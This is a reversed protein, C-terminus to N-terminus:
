LPTVYQIPVYLVVTHFISKFAGLSFIVHSRNFTNNWSICRVRNLLKIPLLLIERDGVERIALCASKDISFRFCNRKTGDYECRGTRDRRALSGTFHIWKESSECFDCAVKPVKTIYKNRGRRVDSIDVSRLKPAGNERPVHSRLSATRLMGPIPGALFTATLQIHLSGNGRSEGVMWRSSSRRIFPSAKVAFQFVERPSIQRAFRSDMPSCKLKRHVYDLRLLLSIWM